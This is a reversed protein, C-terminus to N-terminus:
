NRAHSSKIDYMITFHNDKLKPMTASLLVDHFCWMPSHSILCKKVIKEDKISLNIFFYIIKVKSLWTQNFDCDRERKLLCRIIFIIIEDIIHVIVYDVVVNFTKILYLTWNCRRWSCLCIIILLNVRTHAHQGAAACCGQFVCFYCNPTFWYLFWLCWWCVHSETCIFVLYWM